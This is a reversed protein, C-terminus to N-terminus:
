SQSHEHVHRAHGVAARGRRDEQALAIAVAILDPGAGQGVERAPGLGLDLRQAPHELALGHHRRRVPQRDLPRQRVAMDRGHEAHGPLEAECPEQRAPGLPQGLQRQRQDDGPHQLRRGLERGRALEALRGRRMRQAGHETQARDVLVLEVPGQIQQAPRLGLDLRREGPAM